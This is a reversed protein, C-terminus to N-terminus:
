PLRQERRSLVSVLGLMALVGSSPEPVGPSVFDIQAIVSRAGASDFIFELDAGLDSDWKIFPLRVWNVPIPEDSTFKAFTPTREVAVDFPSFDETTVFELAGSPSRM